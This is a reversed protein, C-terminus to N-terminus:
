KIITFAKEQIVATVLLKEAIPAATVPRGESLGCLTRLIPPFMAVVIKSAGAVDLVTVLRSSAM